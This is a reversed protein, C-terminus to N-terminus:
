TVDTDSADADAPPHPVAPKPDCRRALDTITAQYEAASIRGTMRAALVKNEADLAPWIQVPDAWEATFGDDAAQTAGPPQPPSGGRGRKPPASAVVATRWLTVAIALLAILLLIDLSM